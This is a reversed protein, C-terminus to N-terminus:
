IQAFRELNEQGSRGLTIEAPEAWGNTPADRSGDRAQGDVWLARRGDGM